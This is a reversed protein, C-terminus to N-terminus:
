VKSTMLYKNKTSASYYECRLLYRKYELYSNENLENQGVFQLFNNVRTFYEKRTNDSVDITNFVKNKILELKDFQILGANKM